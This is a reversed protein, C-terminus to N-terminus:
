AVAKRKLVLHRYACEGKRGICPPFTRHAEHVSVVGHQDVYKGDVPVRNGTKYISPDIVLDEKKPHRITMVEKRERRASDSPLNRSRWTGSRIPM